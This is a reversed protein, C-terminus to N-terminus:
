EFDERERELEEFCCELAERATGYAFGRRALAALVKEREGNALKRLYSKRILACCAEFENPELETLVREIMERDLGKQELQYRIERVSKNQGVLWAVRSRAFREDDLLDLRNMEAVAAAASHEDFVRCLKQYLEGSSYDRLSLYGLAKEKARRTDSQRQLEALAAADLTMGERIHNKVFTEDDVSFLFREEEDFLAYRGRRTERISGIMM